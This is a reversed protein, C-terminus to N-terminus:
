GPGQEGGGDAHRTGSVSTERQAALTAVMRGPPGRGPAVPLFGASATRGEPGPLGAPHRASQVCVGGGLRWGRGLEPPGRRAQWPHQAFEAAGPRGPGQPRAWAPPMGSLSPSVSSASPDLQSEATEPCPRAWRLGAAPDRGGRGPGPRRGGQARHRLAHRRAGSQQREGGRAEAVPHPAARRQVGQLPVGRRQGARGDPQGAAGGAPHAPAPLARRVSPRPLRPKPVAWGPEGGVVRGGRAEGLVDLTYTQRISGLRNQVVCTYNGRDSPVVSEM